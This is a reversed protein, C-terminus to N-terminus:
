RENKILQDNNKLILNQLLQASDQRALVEGLGNCNFCLAYSQNSGSLFGYLLWSNARLPSWFAKLYIKRQM